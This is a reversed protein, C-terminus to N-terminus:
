KDKSYNLRHCSIYGDPFIRSICEYLRNKYKVILYDRENVMIVDGKVIITEAEEGGFRESKSQGYSSFASMFFIILWIITSKHM